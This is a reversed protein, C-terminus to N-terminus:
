KTIILKRTFSEKGNFLEVYYHGSSFESVDIEMTERCFCLHTIEYERIIYGKNDYIILNAADYLEMSYKIRIKDKAPNPSIPELYLSSTYDNEVNVTRITIHVSDWVLPKHYGAYIIYDGEKDAKLYYPNERTEQIVDVVNGEGDVLEYGIAKTSSAGNVKVEVELGDILRIDIIDKKQTHCDDGTCGPGDNDKPKSNTHSSIIILLFVSVAMIYKFLKIM